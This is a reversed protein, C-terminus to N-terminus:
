CGAAPDRRGEPPTIRAEIGAHEKLLYLLNAGDLLEIPKNKAFDFSAQGYGSTTVLIGKSAGENQLTGFLDRVASVGVTSRYRKAQIVVKGGVIPRPDHAVCDVGGDRSARTQRTELGMRAFLNQILSEFEAPTLELLNPRQDLSGLLDTEEVFRPDVYRPDVLDFELVPRVPVLEATNRSVGAGLHRLCAAPDVHALDLEAFTERTTRLTLLCPRIPRGTAADVTSVMGNLVISRAQARTDATFLDRVVRLALQGVVSTYRARIQTAPRATEAIADSTKVYRYAKVKPIVGIAPLEYEVVLQRSDPVYAMRWEAPFGEPSPASNLVFDFYAVVASPLGTALDRLYADVEAHQRRTREVAEAVRRAHERQLGELQTRRAQERTAHEACATEYALRGQRVAEEYKAGGFLRSLGTPQPPAFQEPRPPPEPRAAPGPEFPLHARREKMGNVDVATNRGLGSVLLEDLETLRQALTANLAAVEAARAEAYLRKREKETAAAAWLSAAQAQAAERQAAAESHRRAAEARETERQTQAIAAM